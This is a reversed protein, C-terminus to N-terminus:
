PGRMSAAADAYSRYRPEARMAADLDIFRRSRPRDAPDFLVLTAFRGPPPRGSWWDSFAEASDPCNARFSASRLRVTHLVEASWLGVLVHTESRFGGRLQLRTALSEALYSPKANFSGFSEQLDPFRTRNEIHVLARHEVSWSVLDARGAFQYHQFPEDLRVPLGYGQFVSAEADGMWAHVGDQLRIPTTRRPDLAHLEVRLGLATTVRTYSTLTGPLGSELRQVESRSLGCRAALERITVRRRIREARIEGGIELAIRAVNRELADPQAAV